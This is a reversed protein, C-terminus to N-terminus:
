LSYSIHKYSQLPCMHPCHCNQWETILVLFVDSDVWSYQIFITCQCKWSETCKVKLPEFRPDGQWFVNGWWVRDSLFSFFNQVLHLNFKMGFHQTWLGQPDVLCFFLYSSGFIIKFSTVKRILTKPSRPWLLSSPAPHLMLLLPWPLSGDHERTVLWEHRRAKICHVPAHKVGLFDLESIVSGTRWDDRWAHM